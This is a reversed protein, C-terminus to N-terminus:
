FKYSYFCKYCMPTYNSNLDTKNDVKKDIIANRKGCNVCSLRMIKIYDALQSLATSGLFFKGNYDSRLAFAYVDTIDALERIERVRKESFFQAEDIFIVITGLPINLDAAIKGISDRIVCNGAENSFFLTKCLQLNNNGEVAGIVSINNDNDIYGERGFMCDHTIVIYPSTNKGILNCM